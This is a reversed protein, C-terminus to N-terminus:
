WSKIQFWLIEKGTPMSFASNASNESFLRWCGHHSDNCPKKQKSMKCLFCRPTGSMINGQLDCIIQPSYSGGPEESHGKQSNLHGKWPNLSRWKPSWFTVQFFSAFWGNKKMFQKKTRAPPSALGTCQMPCCTIPGAIRRRAAFDGRLHPRVANISIRQELVCPRKLLYLTVVWRLSCFSSWVPVEASWKSFLHVFLINGLLISLFPIRFTNQAGWNRGSSSQAIFRCSTRAGIGQLIGLAFFWPIQSAEHRIWHNNSEKRASCM